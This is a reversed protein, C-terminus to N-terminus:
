VKEYPLILVHFEAASQLADRRSEREHKNQSTKAEGGGVQRFRPLPADIASKLWEGPAQVKERPAQSGGDQQLTRAAPLLRPAPPQYRFLSFFFTFSSVVARVMWKKFWAAKIDLLALLHVPELTKEARQSCHDHNSSLLSFTSEIVEEM